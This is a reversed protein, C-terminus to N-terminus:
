MKKLVEIGLIELGMRLIQATVATLFLRFDTALPRHGAQWQSARAPLGAQWQSARAPLNTTSSLIRHKQYFLNFKQALDFLYQCLLHPSFQEAATVLVEPFQYFTRLLAQEESNLPRSDGKELRKRGDDTLKQLWNLWDSYAAPLARGTKASLQNKTPARTPSFFPSRPGFAKRLVSACRAYTYQLYPASYGEIALIKDWDFIIDRQIEQKLDNFKIGGIAVARAIGKKEKTILDQSTQSEEVLKQARKLGENIVEELRITQGKRTSFKGHPWRILGHGLHVLQNRSIYGLKEAVLFVQQFHFKQEVGVEYVILNPQWKKVRFKIAALDRLLYTTAGDSKVLMAPVKLEPLDIITAGRSKKLLGKKQADALVQDMWGNFHYYSEGYAYDIKIGLLSYIRNFEELSLDVCAQWIRKAEPDGEELRKFWKRGEEELGPDKEALRHFEVYLRELNEIKLNEIKLNKSKIMYILKGFQTGWDGLHNDGITKWGLVQYLNYIAQGINTSRLHGIGFPKAINPSSYDIVMTKGQGIKALKQKFKAEDLVETAQNILYDQSLWFNIFGPPAVEIKIIISPRRDAILAELEKVIAQAFELPNRFRVKGNSVFKVTDTRREVTGAFHRFLQLAINTAYDGHEPHTPHELQIEKADPAVPWNLSAIAQTLLEKLQNAVM